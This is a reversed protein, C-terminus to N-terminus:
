IHPLLVAIVSTWIAVFVCYQKVPMLRSLMDDMERLWGAKIWSNLYYAANNETQWLGQERSYKIFEDLLSRARGYPVETEEVFLDAIFALIHPANEARLLKWVPSEHYLRRYTAQIGQINM